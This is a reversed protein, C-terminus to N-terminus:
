SSGCTLGPGKAMQPASFWVVPHQGVAVGYRPEGGPVTVTFDYVGVAAVPIQTEGVTDLAAMGALSKVTSSADLKQEVATNEVLSATALVKGSSDTVVVQDGASTCDPQGFVASEDMISGHATFSGPGSSALVGAAVGVVVVTAGATAALWKPQRWWPERPTPVQQDDRAPEPQPPVHEQGSPLLSDPPQDTSM